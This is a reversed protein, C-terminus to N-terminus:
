KLLYNRIKKSYQVPQFFVSKLIELTLSAGLFLSLSFLGRFLKSFYVGDHKAMVLTNRLTVELSHRNALKRWAFFNCYMYESARARSDTKTRATESHTRFYNLEESIYFAKGLSQLSIVFKWDGALKFRHLGFLERSQLSEKRFLMGSLNPVFQGRLLMQLGLERQILQDEGWNLEPFFNSLYDRTSGICADEDNILTSASFVFGILPDKDLVSITKALFDISASDDSEAIWWFDHNYPGSFFRSYQSFPSGSPTSNKFLKVRIDDRYEQLLDWSADSSGDDVVYIMFDQFTQNLISEIRTKIFRSHNHSPVLIGVRSEKPKTM